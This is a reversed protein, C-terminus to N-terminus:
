STRSSRRCANAAVVEIELSDVRVCHEFLHEAVQVQDDSFGVYVYRYGGQWRYLAILVLDIHDKLVKNTISDLKAVGMLWLDVDCRLLFLLAPLKRYLIVPYADCSLMLIADKLHKFAQVAVAGVLTGADAQRDALLNDLAM